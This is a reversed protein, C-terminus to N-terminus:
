TFTIIQEEVVAESTGLFFAGGDGFTVGVICFMHCDIKGMCLAILWGNPKGLVAM